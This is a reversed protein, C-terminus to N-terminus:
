QFDQAFGVEEDILTRCQENSMEDLERQVEIFANIGFVHLFTLLIHAREALVVLDAHTHCTFM